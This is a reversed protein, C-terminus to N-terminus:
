AFKLTKGFKKSRAVGGVVGFGVIMIAWTGPEPTSATVFSFKPRPDASFIGVSSATFSRLATADPILQSLGTGTGAGFSKLASLALSFDAGSLNNFSYLDSSYTVSGGSFTSDSVTPSTSNLQGVIVGDRFTASLLNAGSAITFSGGVINSGTLTISPGDYILSLVGANGVVPNNNGGLNGQAIFTGAPTVVTQAPSGTPVTAKLTLKSSLSQLQTAQAASLGSGQFTSFVEVSNQGPNSKNTSTGLVGGTGTNTPVNITGGGNNRFLLSSQGANQQSYSAFNTLEAHAPVSVLGAVAAAGIAYIGKM